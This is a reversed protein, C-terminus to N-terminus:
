CVSRRLRKVVSRAFRSELRDIASPKVALFIELYNLTRVRDATPDKM